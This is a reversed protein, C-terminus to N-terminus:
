SLHIHRRLRRLAVLGMYSLVMCWAVLYVYSVYRDTLAEFLGYRSLEFIQVLPLYWLWTRYPEPVWGLMFFAGSTPMLVYTIPHVFRGLLRNEHTAATLNMSVGFSFWAMFGVGAMLELPRAPPDSYGLMITFFLLVAFTVATASVELIARAALIDFVTVTRHYLLPANSEIAGESRTVLGRFMIFISYGLLAFPVARVDSGFRSKESAHLLTIAGALTMPEGFLWLYGINERGYRTHLERMLLAGIVRAQVRWGRIWSGLPERSLESPGSSASM